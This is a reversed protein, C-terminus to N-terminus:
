FQNIEKQCPIKELLFSNAGMPAFEKSKSYVEKESPTHHKRPQMRLGRGGLASKFAGYGEFISM